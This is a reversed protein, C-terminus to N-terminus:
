CIAKIQPSRAIKLAINVDSHAQRAIVIPWHLEFSIPSVPFIILISESPRVPVSKVSLAVDPCIISEPFHFWKSIVM